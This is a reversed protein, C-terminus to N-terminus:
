TPGGNESPLSRIADLQSLAKKLLSNEAELVAIKRELMGARAKDTYAKGPGAFAEDAYAQHQARWRSILNPHLQYQRAVQAAPKGAEVERIVHLKFEKSFRRQKVGM